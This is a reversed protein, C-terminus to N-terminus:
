RAPNTDPGEAPRFRVRITEGTAYAGELPLLVFNDTVVAGVEPKEEVIRPGPRPHSGSRGRAAGDGRGAEEGLIEVRQDRQVCVGCGTGQLHRSGHQFGCPRRDVTRLAPCDAPRRRGLLRHPHGLPLGHLPRRGAAAHAPAGPGRVYAGGARAPHHLLRLPPVPAATRAPGVRARRGPLCSKSRCQHTHGCAFCSPKPGGWCM